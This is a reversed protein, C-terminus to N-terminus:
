GCHIFAAPDLYGNGFGENPVSCRFLRRKQSPAQCPNKAHGHNSPQQVLTRVLVVRVSCQSCIILSLDSRLLEEAGELQQQEYRTYIRACSKNHMPDRYQIYYALPLSTGRGVCRDGMAPNLDGGRGPGGGVKRAATERTMFFAHRRSNREPPRAPSRPLILCSFSECKRLSLIFVSTM